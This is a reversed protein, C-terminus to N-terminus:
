MSAENEETATECKKEEKYDDMNCVFNNKATPVPLCPLVPLDRTHLERPLSACYMSELIRAAEQCLEPYTSIKSLLDPSLGGWIVVHFHLGGRATTETVGIFAACTGVIVGKSEEGWGRYETKLSRNNDGSTTGPKIGVLITM